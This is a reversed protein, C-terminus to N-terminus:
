RAAEPSRVAMVLPGLLQAIQGVAGSVDECPALRVHPLSVYWWVVEGAARALAPLVGVSLGFCDLDPHWVRLFAPDHDYCPLTRWGDGALEEALRDLHGIATPKTNV